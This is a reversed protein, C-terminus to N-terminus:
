LGGIPYKALKWFDHCGFRKRQLKRIEFNDIVM